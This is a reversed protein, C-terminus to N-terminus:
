KFCSGHCLRVASKMRVPPTKARKEQLFSSLVPLAGNEHEVLRWISHPGGFARISAYGRNHLATGLKRLSYMIKTICRRHSVLHGITGSLAIAAVPAPSLPGSLLSAAPCAKAPTPPAAHQQRLRSAFPPATSASCSIKGSSIIAPATFRAFEDPAFRLRHASALVSRSPMKAAHNLGVCERRDGNAGSARAPRKRPTRCAAHCHM